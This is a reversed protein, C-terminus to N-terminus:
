RPRDVAYTGEDDQFVVLVRRTTGDIVAACTFTEGRKIPPNVGNNCTVAAVSAVGYGSVPDTLVQGVGRQAAAVDLLKQPAETRLNLIAVTAVVAAVAVAAVGGVLLTGRPLRQPRSVAAPAARTPPEPSLSQPHSRKPVPVPTRDRSVTQWWPPEDSSPPAAPPTFGIQPGRIARRLGPPIHIPQTPDESPPISIRRTRDPDADAM